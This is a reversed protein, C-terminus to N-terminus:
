AGRHPAMPPPCRAQLECRPRLAILAAALSGRQWPACGTVVIAVGNHVREQQLQLLPRRWLDSLSDLARPRPSHAALERLIVEVGPGPAASLCGCRWWCRDRGLRALTATARSPRHRRGSQRRVPRRRFCRHRRRCRRHWLWRRRLLPCPRCRSCRSLRRCRLLCRRRRRLPWCRPRTDGRCRSQKGADLAGSGRSPMGRGKENEEAM